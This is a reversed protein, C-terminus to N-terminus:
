WRHRTRDHITQPHAAFPKVSATNQSLEGRSRCSCGRLCPPQARNCPKRGIVRVGLEKLRETLVGAPALVVLEYGPIGARAMDLTHRAVGGFNPVPVVWLVKFICKSM